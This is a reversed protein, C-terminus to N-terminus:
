PHPAMELFSTNFTPIPASEGAMLAATLRAAGADGPGGSVCGTVASGSFVGGAAGGASGSGPSFVSGCGACFRLRAGSHLSGALLGARGAATVVGSFASRELAGAHFAGCLGGTDAPGSVFSRMAACSRVRGSALGAIGGAAAGHPARSLNVVRCNVARCSEIRGACYGAIGGTYSAGMVVAQDLAVNKVVGEPAVWGFLGQSGSPGWIVARSIVHGRGDFEGRFMHAATGIARLPRYARIDATLRVRADAQEVRAVGESFAALEEFTGILVIGADEPAHSPGFLAVVLVLSLAALPKLRM